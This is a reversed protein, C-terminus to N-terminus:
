VATPPHFFSGTRLLSYSNYYEAQPEREFSFCPRELDIVSSTDCFLEVEQVHNRKDNSSAPKETDSANALAAKLHCKGCCHMEPRAKNECLVKSIYDYNVVYDVLPFVPKFLLM